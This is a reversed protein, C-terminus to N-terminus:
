HQAWSWGKIRWNPGIKQLAATLVSGSEVMAKGHQKYALSVPAVVYARDGTVEVHTPKHLTVVNGTIGNRSFYAGASAWWDACANAGQWVHPAFDDIIVAGPACLKVSAAGDGKNLLSNYQNIVTIPGAAGAALAPTAAGAAVAAALMMLARM